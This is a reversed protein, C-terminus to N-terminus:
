DGKDGYDSQAVAGSYAEETKEDGSNRHEFNEGNRQYARGYGDHDCQDPRNCGEQYDPSDKPSSDAVPLECARKEECPRWPRRKMRMDSGIGITKSLTRAFLVTKIPTALTNATFFATPM